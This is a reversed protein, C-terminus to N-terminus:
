GERMAIEGLVCASLGWAISGEGRHRDQAAPKDLKALAVLAELVRKERPAARLLQRRYALPTINMSHALEDIFSEIFFTNQSAGVSRWWGSRLGSEVQAWTTHTRPLAYAPRLGMLATYDLKGAGLPESNLSSGLISSSAVDIRLATVNRNGDIAAQMRAAAPPRYFDQRMDEERSWVLKIPGGVIKSIRVAQLACDPELRRGFSGGVGTTHVTVKELAIGLEAAVLKRVLGQNQTPLWLEAGAVTVYATANQPEMTAHAAIPAEYVVDIVTAANKLSADVAGLHEQAGIGRQQSVIGTGARLADRLRRRVTVSDLKEGTRVWQPNLADLGTEDAL